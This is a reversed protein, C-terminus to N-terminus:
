DRVGNDDVSYHGISYEGFGSVRVSCNAVGYVAISWDRQALTVLEVSDFSVTASMVYEPVVSCM